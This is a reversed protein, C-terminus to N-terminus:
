VPLRAAAIRYGRSCPHLLYLLEPRIYSMNPDIGPFPIPLTSDPVSVSFVDPVLKGSLASYTISKVPNRIIRAPNGSHSIAKNMKM